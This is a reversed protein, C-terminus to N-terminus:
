EFPIGMSSLTDITHQYLQLYEDTPKGTVQNFCEQYTSGEPAFGLQDEYKELLKIVLENAQKRNLKVAAKGMDVGFQAEMPTYAHSRTARAPHATEYSPAGSTVACLIWAATEYFYMSTCPGAECYPNWIVPMPINRSAAQCSTSIVWLLERSTNCGSSFHVPFHLMYNAKYVLLGTLIYAVSIVATGEPGGCYGGLIPSTEAGINAGWNKLYAIKNMIGFDIKMESAAGCLWGDEPRCGFQPASAAITTVAGATTSVLNMIPLGPRGARRVAERGVRVRQIGAYIEVPSGGTIPIGRINSAAPVSVSNALPISACGEVVRGALEDSTFTIGSGMHFWPLKNQDPKRMCLVGADKGQGAFCKGTANAIAQYIEKNTFGIVRQTDQCYVGTRTLLEVGAQFLNDASGDDSPCPTSRKYRIGYEEVVQKINPILVKMDFEKESMVPGELTRQYLDLFDFM